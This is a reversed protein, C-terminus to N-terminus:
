SRDFHALHESRGVAKLFAFFIFIQIILTILVIEMEEEKEVWGINGIVCDFNNYGRGMLGTYYVCLLILNCFRACQVRKESTM